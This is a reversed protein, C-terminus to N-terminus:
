AAGLIPTPDFLPALEPLAEVVSQGRSRDMESTWRRFEPLLDSRDAGNMYDIIGDISSLLEDVDKRRWHAPWRGGSSGDFRAVAARLRETARRKMDAPLLRVDFQEPYSLLNLRPREFHPLATVAYEIAEDLRQVNYAQVTINLSLGGSCKLRDAEADLRRLNRDLVDWKSPHRIYSNTTGVGDLSVTISLRKFHPWLAFVREPLVTLNTVYGLTIGPALGTEVLHELFGFMEEAILPEGGAFHLREVSPACAEFAERFEPRAYWDIRKLKVLRPDDEVLGHLRAFEPILAKSSRPSCMRCRLNCVNGLRLDVSRILSSPSTGDAGTAALAGAVHEGFMANSMLRHSHMGLDEDRFCRACAAPRRGELMDTRLRKMFGSNWATEIAGPASAVYPTQDEDRNITEPGGLAMCCPHFHGMESVFLHLWPLVCWTGGPAPEARPLAPTAQAPTAQAPTAQPHENSREM